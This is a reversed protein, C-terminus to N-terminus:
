LDMPMPNSGNNGISSLETAFSISSCELNKLNVLVCTKVISFDPVLVMLSNEREMEFYKYRFEPQNGAFYISPVERIIFPELHSHDYPYCSLTDPATPAMHGWKLTSELIAM